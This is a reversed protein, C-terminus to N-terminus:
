VKRKHITEEDITETINVNSKAWIKQALTKSTLKISSVDTQWNNRFLCRALARDTDSLVYFFM